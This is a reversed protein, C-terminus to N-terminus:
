KLAVLHLYAILAWLHDITALQFYTIHHLRCKLVNDFQHVEDQRDKQM